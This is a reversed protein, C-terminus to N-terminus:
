PTEKRVAQAGNLHALDLQYFSTATAGLVSDREHASLERLLDNVASWTREYGGALLSIPWDSGFMLRSPGFADLADEVFPRVSETTWGDLSGSSAYLGSIKATIRPNEAAARILGRWAARENEAGGIPPKGLHDIVISLEPHRSSITPLHALTAPGGTVYDFTLRANELVALGADVDDRLVWASDARAHLLNRVGVIRRDSRFGDVMRAAVTPDDLPVWAVIGVVEPNEDATRVMNATDEANDAAQVLVTATVGAARMAPLADSMSMTTDIPALDAGLWPYDGSALDWVHQHADIIV